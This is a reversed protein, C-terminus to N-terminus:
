ENEPHLLENIIARSLDANGRADPRALVLILADGANTNEPLSTKPVHITQGDELTLAATQENVSQVKAKM